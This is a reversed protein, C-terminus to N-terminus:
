FSLLFEVPYHDSVKFSQEKNLNLKEDFRYVQANSVRKELENTVIIRDYACNTNSVTTDIENGILWLFENKNKFLDLTALNNENLYTCDANLDGMLIVEDDLFHNSVDIIVDDLKSIEDFAKSPQVHIGIIVFDKNNSEFSVSYPEREFDDLSDKYQYTNKIKVNDKKYFFAYQEKSSSNGLRESIVMNYSNGTSQNLYHLLKIIAEGKKDRIEQILIIDYRSLISIINGVVIPKSMKSEGFIQINFSGILLSTNEKNNKEEVQIKSIINYNNTGNYIVIAFGVIIIIFLLYLYKKM